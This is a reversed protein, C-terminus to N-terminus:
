KIGTARYKSLLSDYAPTSCFSVIIHNLNKILTTDHINVVWSQFETFSVPADISTGPNSKIMPEAVKENIVVYRFDGSVMKMFLYEASLGPHEIIHIPAGIKKSLNELRRRSPSNKEIHVTDNALDFASSAMIKGYPLTKQALVQRDLFLPETFAFEKMMEADAPLSAIIDFDGATLKKLATNISIVPWIKVPRALRDAVIASFDYNLGGITDDYIYYSLPSYVMAINLTDESNNCVQRQAYPSEGCQRSLLFMAIITLVLLGLYLLFRTNPTRNYPQKM